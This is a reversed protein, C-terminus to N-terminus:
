KIFYIEWGAGMNHWYDESHGQEGAKWLVFQARGTQTDLRVNEREYGDPREIRGYIYRPKREFLRVIWNM